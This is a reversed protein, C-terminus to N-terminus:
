FLVRKFMKYIFVFFLSALIIASLIFISNDYYKYHSNFDDYTYCGYAYFDKTYPDKTRTNFSSYGYLKHNSYFRGRIFRGGWARIVHSIPEYFYIVVDDPSTFCVNLPTVPLSVLDSSINIGSPLSPYTYDGPQIGMESFTPPIYFDM